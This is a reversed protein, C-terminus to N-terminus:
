CVTVELRKEYTARFSSKEFSSRLQADSWV